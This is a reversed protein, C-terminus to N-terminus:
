LSRTYGKPKDNHYLITEEDNLETIMADMEIDSYQSRLPRKIQARTKADARGIEVKGLVAERLQTKRDLRQRLSGSTERSALLKARFHEVLPDLFRDILRGVALAVILGVVIISGYLLISRLLLPNDLQLERDVVPKIVYMFFLLLAYAVLQIITSISAIINGTPKPGTPEGSM